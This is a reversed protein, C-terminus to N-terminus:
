RSSRACARSIFCSGSTTTSKPVGRERDRLIDIAALDIMEELDAGTRQERM